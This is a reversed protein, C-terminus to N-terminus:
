RTCMSWEKAAEHLAAMAEDSALFVLRRYCDELTGSRPFASDAAADAALDGVADDRGAQALLWGAFGARQVPERSVPAWQLSQVVRLVESKGAALDARFGLARLREMMRVQAVAVTGGLRKVEVFAAQGAPTLVLRDPVGVVGNQKLAEGGRDKVLAVLYSEIDAERM